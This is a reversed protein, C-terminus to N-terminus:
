PETVEVTYSTIEALRGDTFDYIDCSAVRSADQGQDTYEALSDVVVSDGAVLTRFRAFSTTVGALYGATQRCTAVVREKGEVLKDGLINWRIDDALYPFTAEFDHGSFAAAVQENTLQM